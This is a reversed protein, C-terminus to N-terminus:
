SLFLAAAEQRNPYHCVTSQGPVIWREPNGDSEPPVKGGHLHVVTRVGAKDSEAGHLTHDIPLMHRAPLQNVWEVTLPEGSRTEFVPGPSMGNYGWFTTAPLDRHVKAQFQWAVIRHERGSIRSPVPLPDVWRELAQPSLSLGRMMPGGKQTVGHQAAARM